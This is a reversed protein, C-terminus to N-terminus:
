DEVCVSKRKNPDNLSKSLLSLQGNAELQSIIMNIKTGKNAASPVTACTVKTTPSVKSNEDPVGITPKLSTAGTIVATTTTTPVSVPPPNQQFSLKKSPKRTQKQDNGDPSKNFRNFLWSKVPTAPSPVSAVTPGASHCIPECKNVRTPSIPADNIIKIPSAKMHHQSLNHCIDATTKPTDYNHLDKIIESHKSLLQPEEYIDDEHYNGGSNGGVDTCLYDPMPPLPLKRSTSYSVNDSKALLNQQISVMWENLEKFSPSLFCIRDDGSVVIYFQNKENIQDNLSFDLRVDKILICQTPKLDNCNNYLLLWKDLLGVFFKKSQDFFLRKEQKFLTGYKPSQKIRLHAAPLGSYPCKSNDDEVPYVNAVNNLKMNTCDDYLCRDTTFDYCNEEMNLEEECKGDAIIVPPGDIAINGEFMECSDIKDTPQTLNIDNKHGVGSMELYSNEEEEADEHSLREKLKRLFTKCKHILTYRSEDLKSVINMYDTGLSNPENLLCCDCTKGCDLGDCHPHQNESIAEKFCIEASTAANLFRLM